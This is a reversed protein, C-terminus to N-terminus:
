RSLRPLRLLSSVTTGVVPTRPRRDGALEFIRKRHLKDGPNAVCGFRGDPWVILHERGHTDSGAEACAPCQAVIRGTERKVWRLSNIDLAM